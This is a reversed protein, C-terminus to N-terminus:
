EEFLTDIEDESIRTTGEITGTINELARTITGNTVWNTSDANLEVDGTPIGLLDKYLGTTAVRSLGASSAKEHLAQAIVKNQVPNESTDSLRNDVPISVDIDPEYNELATNILGQAINSIQETTPVAINNWRTKDEETVHIEADNIHEHLTTSLTHLTSLISSIQTGQLELRTVLDAIGNIANIQEQSIHISSNEIHNMVAYSETIAKIADIKKVIDLLYPLNQAVYEVIDYAGNLQRDILASKGLTNVRYSM